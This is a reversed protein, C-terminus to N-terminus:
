VSNLRSPAPSAKGSMMSSRLRCPLDSLADQCSAFFSRPIVTLFYASV